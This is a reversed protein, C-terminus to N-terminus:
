DELLLSDIEDPHIHDESFVRGAVSIGADVVTRRNGSVLPHWWSLKRGESLVRYACTMPLWYYKDRDLRAISLCGKVRSLRNAYDGCRCTGTDLLRCAARTYFVKRDPEEFRVLCCRGCGDCLSEWQCESMDDLTTTEWFRETHNCESM